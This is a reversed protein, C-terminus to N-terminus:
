ASRLVVGRAALMTNTITTDAFGIAPVSFHRLRQPLARGLYGLRFAMNDPLPPEAL